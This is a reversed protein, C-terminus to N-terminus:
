KESDFKVSECGKTKRTYVKDKVVCETVITKIQEDTLQAGTFVGVCGDLYSQFVASCFEQQAKLDVKCTNGAGYASSVVMSGLILKKIM